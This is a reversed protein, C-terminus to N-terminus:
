CGYSLFQTGMGFEAGSIETLIDRTSIDIFQIRNFDAASVAFTDGDIQLADHLWRSGIDVRRAIGLKNGLFVIVGLCSDSFYLDGTRSDARVGHCGVFGRLLEHYNGATDFWGLAGQILMSVVIGGRWYSACNIHTLQLDNPVYHEVVSDKRTLDFNRGYIAEPLRFASEVTLSKENIVLVSDSGSCTILLRGRGDPIITHAGSLWPDEIVALHSIFSDYVELRDVGLAWLKNQYWM